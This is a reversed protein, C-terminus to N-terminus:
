RTARNQPALKRASLAEVFTSGISNRDHLTRATKAACPRSSSSRSRRRDIAETGGPWTMDAANAAPTIGITAVAGTSAQGAPGVLGPTGPDGEPGPPGGEASANRRAM